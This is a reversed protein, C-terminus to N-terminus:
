SSLVRQSLAIERGRLRNRRFDLYARSISFCCIAAPAARAAFRPSPERAVSLPAERCIARDMLSFCSFSKGLVFRLFNGALFTVLIWDLNVSGRSPALLDGVCEGAVSSGEYPNSENARCRKTATRASSSFAEMPLHPGVCSVSGCVQTASIATSM